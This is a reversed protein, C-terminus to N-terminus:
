HDRVQEVAFQRVEVEAGEVAGTAIRLQGRLQFRDAGPVGIVAMHQVAAELAAVDGPMVAVRGLVEVRHLQLQPLARIHFLQVTGNGAQNPPASAPPTSPTAALTKPKPGSVSCVSVGSVYGQPLSSARSSALVNLM